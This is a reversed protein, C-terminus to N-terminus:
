KTVFHNLYYLGLRHYSAVVHITRVLSRVDMVYYRKTLPADVLSQCCTKDDCGNSDYFQVYALGNAGASSQGGKFHFLLLVKVYWLVRTRKGDTGIANGLMAAHSFAPMGHFSPNARVYHCEREPTSPLAVATHVHLDQVSHGAEALIQQFRAMGEPHCAVYSQWLEQGRKGHLGFPAEIIKHSASLVPARVRDAQVLATEYSRPGEIASPMNRLAERMRASRLIAEDYQRYNSARFPQKCSTTHAHEYLSTSYEGPAGGRRIADPFHSLLHIKVLKWGRGKRPFQTKLLRVLEETDILYDDLDKETYEKARFYKDFWAVFYRLVYFAADTILGEMIFLTVRMMAAHEAASYNAGFSFYRGPPPIKLGALLTRRYEEGHRLNMTKHHKNKRLLCELVYLWIGILIVKTMHTSYEKALSEDRSYRQQDEVNRVPAGVRMNDLDKITIECISCPRASAHQLTCTVKCTEPYDAVYVFMKPWVTYAEGAPDLLPISEKCAADLSKLVVECCKQFLETKQSPEMEPDPLPLLAILAHGHEQWRTSLPLNAFSLYVPWARCRENGSLHTEDSSIILPCICERPGLGDQADIWFSATHAEAYVRKKNVDLKEAARHVFGPANRPDAWMRRLAEVGDLFKVTFSKPWGTVRIVATKFKIKEIGLEEEAFKDVAAKGAWDAIAQRDFKPHNLLRFFEVVDPGSLGAGRNCHAIFRFVEFRTEFTAEEEEDDAFFAVAPFFEADPLGDELGTDVTEPISEDVPDDPSPLTSWDVGSYTPVLISPSRRYEPLPDDDHTREHNSVSNVSSFRLRCFRCAYFDMASPTRFAISPASWKGLVQLPTPAELSTRGATACQAPPIFSYQ